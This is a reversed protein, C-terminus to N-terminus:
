QTKMHNFRNKGSRKIPCGPEQCYIVDDYKSLRPELEKETPEPESKHNQAYHSLILPRAEEGTKRFTCRPSPCYIYLISALKKSHADLDHPQRKRGTGPEASEGNEPLNPLTDASNVM